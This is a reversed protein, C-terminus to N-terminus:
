SYHMYNSKSIGEHVRLFHSRRQRGSFFVEKCLRCEYQNDALTKGYFNHPRPTDPLIFHLFLFIILIKIHIFIIIDLLDRNM